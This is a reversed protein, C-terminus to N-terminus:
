VSQTQMWIANNVFRVERALGNRWSHTNNASGHLQSFNMKIAGKRQEYDLIDLEQGHNRRLPCFLNDATKITKLFFRIHQGELANDGGVIRYM